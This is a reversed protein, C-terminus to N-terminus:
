DCSDLQRILVSFDEFLYSDLVSPKYCVCAYLNTSKLVIRVLCYELSPVDDFFVRSCSISKHVLLCVGGHPGDRDKRFINHTNKCLFLSDPDNESLWTETIAVVHPTILGSNMYVDLERFKNGM